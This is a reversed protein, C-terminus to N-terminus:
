EEDVAETVDTVIRYRRTADITYGVLEYRMDQTAAVTVWKGDLWEQVYYTAGPPIRDDESKWEFYIKRSTQICKTLRIGKEVVVPPPTPKTSGFVVLSFVGPVLVAHYWRFGRVLRKLADALPDLVGVLALGSLVLMCVSVAGAAIWVPAIPQVSPPDIWM